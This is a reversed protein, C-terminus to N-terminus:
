SRCGGADAIIRKGQGQGEILATHEASTIEVADAPINGGHIDRTYFGNTSKSYYM